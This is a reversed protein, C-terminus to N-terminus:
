PSVGFAPAAASVDSAVVGRVVDGVVAPALPSLAGRLLHLRVSSPVTAFLRWMARRLDASPLTGDLFGRWTPAPQAFFASFFARAATGDFACLADLGFLQLRRRARAEPTWVRATLAEAVALPARGANVDGVVVDAVVDVARLSRAVTYGTVPQVLGLAAGFAGVPQAPLPLASHMPFLVREVGRERRIRTGRRRLRALLRRQLVDFPVAPSAALSTEELLLRGDDFALAYLFSPPGGDDVDGPGFPSRWDMFLATGPALQEDSGDVLLGFAAQQASPRALGAKRVLVPQHGSADVIFAAHITRGGATTVARGDDVVTAVHDDIVDVAGGMSRALAAPSLRAYPRALDIAGDGTDVITRPFVDAVFGSPLPPSGTVEDVFACLTAEDARAASAPAVVIPRQGRQVLGRCLAWAAPGGGVM